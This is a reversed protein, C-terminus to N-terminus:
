ELEVEVEGGTRSLPRLQVRVAAPDLRPGGEERVSRLVVQEAQYGDRKFFLVHPRDARLEIESPSAGAVPEGDVFVQVPAPGVELAVWQTAPACALTV